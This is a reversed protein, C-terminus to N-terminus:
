QSMALRAGLNVLLVSGVGVAALASGKGPVSRFARRYCSIAVLLSWFWFFDVSQAVPMLWEAGESIFIGLTSDFPQHTAVGFAAAIISKVVLGPALSILLIVVHQSYSSKLELFESLLWPLFGSIAPILFPIVLGAVVASTVGLRYAFQSLFSSSTDQWSFTLQVIVLEQLTSLTACSVYLGAFFLISKTRDLAQLPSLITVIPAACFDTSLQKLSM